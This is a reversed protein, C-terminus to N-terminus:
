TWTVERQTPYIVPITVVVRGTSCDRLPGRNSNMRHIRKKRIM